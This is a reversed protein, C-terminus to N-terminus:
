GYGHTTVFLVAQRFKVAESHAVGAIGVLNGALCSSIRVEKFCGPPPRIFRHDLALSGPLDKHPV